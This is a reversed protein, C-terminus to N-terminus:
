NQVDMHTREMWIEAASEYRHILDAYIAQIEPQGNWLERQYIKTVNSVTSSHYKGRNNLVDSYKHANKKNRLGLLQRVQREVAGPNSNLDSFLIVM